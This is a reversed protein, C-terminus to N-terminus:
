ILPRLSSGSSELKAAAVLREEDILEFAGGKWRFMKRAMLIQLTKNTHVLSLGLADALHQQTFPFNVKQGETLNLQRCKRFM